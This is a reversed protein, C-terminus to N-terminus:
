RARQHLPPSEASGPLARLVALLVAGAAVALIVFGALPGVIEGPALTVGASLQSITQAAIMPALLTELFLLPVAIQYGVARRQWILVGAALAAPTIVASDVAVTVFTTYGDLRAPVAGSWLATLMPVCWIVATLVGSAVMLVAPGRRPLGPMANELRRTDTRCMTLVLAWLSASFVTVYVLFLPNYAAGVALTAYAYLLWAQTGTLLLEARLSGRRYGVLAILLVPLVLFLTIVDTGRNAAGSFLSDFRYIGAGFLDVTQGRATTFSVQDPGNLVGIVAAAAAGAAAILTTVVVVPSTPRTVARVTRDSSQAQPTLPKM